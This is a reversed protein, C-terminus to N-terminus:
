KKLRSEIYADLEASGGKLAALAEVAGREALVDVIRRKLEKSTESAYASSLTRVAPDSRKSAAVVELAARRVEESPDGLLRPFGQLPAGELADFDISGVAVIRSEEDASSCAYTLLYAAVEPNARAHGGLAELAAHSLLPDSDAVADRLAPFVGAGEARSLLRIATLRLPQSGGGRALSALREVDAASLRVAGSSVEEEIAGLEAPGHAALLREVISGRTEPVASRAPARAPAPAALPSEDPVSRDKRPPRSPKASSPGTASFYAVAAAALVVVPILIPLRTKM